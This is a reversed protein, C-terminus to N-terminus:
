LKINLIRELKNLINRDYKASGTEIEQIVSVNKNIKMALDKQTINLEQRRRQIKLSLEKNILKIPKQNDENSYNPQKIHKTTNIKNKNNFSQGVYIDKINRSVNFM